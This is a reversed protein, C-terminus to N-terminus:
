VHKAHQAMATGVRVLAADATCQERQEEGDGEPVVGKRDAGHEAVRQILVCVRKM